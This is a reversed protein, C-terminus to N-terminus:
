VPSKALIEKVVARDIVRLLLILAAYAVIGICVNAYWPLGVCLMMVAAMGLAALVIKMIAGLALRTSSTRLVIWGGVLAIISEVAVTVGAAGFYSYRPIFIFYLALSLAAVTAYTWLMTRQRNVVVIANSFLYGLFIAATGFVLVQFVPASAEFGPAVLEMVNRAAFMTVVVIPLASMLLIEFGRQLIRGFRARDAMFATALIPTLLGAFLAPFSILAEFLKYPAGYIGVDHAPYYLSLIITDAKFYVVNFIISLAIPWTMALIKKWLVADYALRFRVLRRAWFATIAFTIFSSLVVTWVIGILGVGMKIALVTAGLLAIRGIVEGSIFRGTNFTKQFIGALVQTLTTFLSSLSLAVVALKVIDPYPFFFVALPALGLIVIASVLRLTFVNSVLAEEDVGPEGLSKALYVYLGMDVVTGFFQLFAAATTFSGYGDVGLHRAVMAFVLLALVISAIRGVMQYLTNHAVSRTLSM